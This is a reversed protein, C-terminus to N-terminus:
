FAANVRDFLAFQEAKVFDVFQPYRNSWDAFKRAPWSGEVKDGPMDQVEAWLALGRAIITTRHSNNM